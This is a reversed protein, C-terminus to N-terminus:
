WDKSLKYTKKGSIKQRQNIKENDKLADLIAESQLQKDTKKLNEHNNQNQNKSKSPNKNPQVEGIDSSQSSKGQQEDSEENNINSDKSGSEKKKEEDSQQDESKDGLKSDNMNQDEDSKRNKSNDSPSGDKNQDEDSQQGDRNDDSQSNRNKQNLMKKLIEYNIKADENKPNLQISKKLYSLSEEWNEKEHMLTAVNFFAKSKLLSDSSSSLDKFIRLAAEKEGLQYASAGIGFKAGDTESDVRLHKEYYEIAKNFEKENYYTQGKDQSILLYPSFLFLILYKM